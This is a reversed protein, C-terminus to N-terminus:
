LQEGHFTGDLSDEALVEAPAAACHSQVPFGRGTLIQFCLYLLLELVELCGRDGHEWHESGGKSHIEGAQGWVM